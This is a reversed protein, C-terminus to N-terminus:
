GKGKPMAWERQASDAPPMPVPLPAPETLERLLVLRLQELVRVKMTQGEREARLAATGGLAPLDAIVLRPGEVPEDSGVDYVTLFFRM